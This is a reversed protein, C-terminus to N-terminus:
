LSCLRKGGSYLWRGDKIRNRSQCPCVKAWTRVHILCARGVNAKYLRPGGGLSLELNMWSSRKRIKQLLTRGGEQCELSQFPQDNALPSQVTREGELAQKRATINHSRLTKQAVLSNLEWPKSRHKTNEKVQSEPGWGIECEWVRGLVECLTCPLCCINHLSRPFPSLSLLFSLSHSVKSLSPGWKNGVLYEQPSFDWDPKKKFLVNEFMEMAFIIMSIM